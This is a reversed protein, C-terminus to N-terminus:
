KEYALLKLDDTRKLLLGVELEDMESFLPVDRLEIEAM